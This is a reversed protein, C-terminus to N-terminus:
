LFIIKQGCIFKTFGDSEVPGQLNVSSINFARLLGLNKKFFHEFTNLETNEFHTVSKGCNFKNMYLFQIKSFTNQSFMNEAM